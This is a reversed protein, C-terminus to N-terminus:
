RRMASSPTLSRKLRERLKELGRYYHNRTNGLSEDLHASIEKLSWGEFFFKELTTRQRENLEAFAEKMSEKLGAWEGYDELSWNSALSEAVDDIHRYDYFCRRKLYRRKDFARSYAIQVLWSRPSGKSADFIKTKRYVYLFVDQILEEAESSDKLIRLGVSFILRSYRDFLLGLADKDGQQVRYMVAEDAPESASANIDAPREEASDVSAAVSPLIRRVTATASSM